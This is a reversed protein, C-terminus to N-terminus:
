GNFKDSITTPLSCFAFNVTLVSVLMGPHVLSEVKIGRSDDESILVGYYFAAKCNTYFISPILGRGGPQMFAQKIDGRSKYLNDESDVFQFAPILPSNHTGLSFSCIFLEDIDKEISSSDLVLGDPKPSNMWNFVAADQESSESGDYSLGSMLVNFM